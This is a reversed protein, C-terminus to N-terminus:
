DVGPGGPYYRPDVRGDSQAHLDTFVTAHGGAVINLANKWITRMARNLPQLLETTNPTNGALLHARLTSDKHVEPGRYQSDFYDLEPIYPDLFTWKPHAQVFEVFARRKSRKSSIRRELENGTELFYVFNMIREWVIRGKVILTQDFSLHRLFLDPTKLPKAPDYGHAFVQTSYMRLDVELLFYMQLKVDVIKYLCDLLREEPYTQTTRFARVFDSTSWDAFWILAPLGKEPSDGYTRELATRMITDFEHVREIEQM